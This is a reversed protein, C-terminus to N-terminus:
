GVATPSVFSRGALVTRIAPLLDLFLRNKVVFGVDGLALSETVFERDNHMTVFVVKATSGRAKLQSAAAIGSLDPMSIDLVLVDPDLRLASTVATKGDSVDGVVDCETGILGVLNDLMMRHDDAILVRPRGIM